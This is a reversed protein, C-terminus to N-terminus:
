GLGGSGSAFLKEEEACKIGPDGSLVILIWDVNRATHHNLLLKSVVVYLYCNGYEYMCVDIFMYVILVIVIVVVIIVLVFVDIVGVNYVTRWREM